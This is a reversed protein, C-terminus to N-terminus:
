LTEGDRGSQYIDSLVLTRKRGAHDPRRSMFDLAIDLSNVDSNYSDNILTCGQRGQKVELRMAVPELTPMRLALQEATLGLRLAVAACTVSNAVAAEDIFPLTYSGEVGDYVYGVTTSLDSKEVSSVYMRATKDTMSWAIREGKYDLDAVCTRVTEDDFPYIIAETEHFLKLKEACKEEMSSFNEQHAAGLNTLVGVTPQIIDRLAQMEGKKSIGAEFVGVETREDLLWVSLPVGIQSNYSRPSRTVVKSPSLLQYLWEKVVTKGNSGTIGVVPIDFEDRHREALRQLAEVAHPVKLFNADAYASLREEPVQEVVFNRVGRRYLDAIYRHGDNRESRIAFFLTEEPFCVSRSDTLIWRINGEADGYRRAGILTTVKEISYLMFM